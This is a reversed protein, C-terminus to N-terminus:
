RLALLFDSSLGGTKSTPILIKSNGHQKESYLFPVNCLLYEEEFVSYVIPLKKYVSKLM